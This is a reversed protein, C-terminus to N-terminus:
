QGQAVMYDVAAKLEDDSLGTGGRPAMVPNTASGNIAVAYLADVGKAIRDKWAAKDGIAPANLAAATAPSHCAFCNTQFLSAGDAGGAPAAAPATAKTPAAETAPATTSAPAAPAAAKEPASSDGCGSLGLLSVMGIVTIIKKSMKKKEEKDQKQQVFKEDM